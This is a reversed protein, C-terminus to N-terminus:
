TCRCHSCEDCTGRAEEAGVEDPAQMNGPV